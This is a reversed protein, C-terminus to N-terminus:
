SSIAALAAAITKPGKFTMGLLAAVHKWRVVGAGDIVFVSRKLGLPGVIGYERAVASKADALLPFPFNYKATFREHSAEDQASIGLVVADLEEFEAFADRYSCLQKTCAPTFDAPYFALVVNKGRYQSLSYTQGGSGPLSFEPAPDGVGPGAM